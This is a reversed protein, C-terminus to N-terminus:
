RWPQSQLYAQLYTINGYGLQPVIARVRVWVRKDAYDHVGDLATVSPVWSVHSSTLTPLWSLM